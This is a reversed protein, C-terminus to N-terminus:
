ELFKGSQMDRETLAATLGYRRCISLVRARTVPDLRDPVM